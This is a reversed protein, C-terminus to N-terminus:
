GPDKWTLARGEDLLLDTSMVPIGHVGVAPHVAEDTVRLPGSAGLLRATTPGKLDADLVGVRTLRRAFSVALAATIWSKGVGGKGSMVAVVGGVDHLREAVRRRQSVVQDLVGSRDSGAVDRYTRFSVRGVGRPRADLPQHGRDRDRHPLLEAP